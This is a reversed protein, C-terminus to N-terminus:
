EAQERWALQVWDVDGCGGCEHAQENLERDVEADDPDESMEVIHQQEEGCSRCEADIVYRKKAPM